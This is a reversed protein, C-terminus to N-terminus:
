LDQPDPLGSELKQTISEILAPDDSHNLARRWQFKAESVRGTRWYADGLHDNIVPDYAELEVARELVKTADEYRGERYHVWGLSDRIFGDYPRLSVAMEIMELAKDLNEGRDALGYGLYNLIYPNDPFFELAREFDKVAANWKGTQEYAIGRVYFINAYRQPFKDPDAYLNEIQNYVKIAEKFSEKIRFTEGYQFLAESNSPFESLVAELSTLAADFNEQKRQTQAIKLQAQLFYPSGSREQAYSDIAQDLNNQKVHIDGLLVNIGEMEKSIHMATQAFLLASDYSREQYFYRAINVIAMAAGGKPDKYQGINILDDLANKDDTEIAQLREDFGIFDPNNIKLETYIEAAKDTKGQRAHYDAIVLRTSASSDLLGLKDFNKEAIKLNGRIEAVLASHLLDLASKENAERPDDKELACLAWRLLVPQVLVKFPGSQISELKEIAADYEKNKFDDAILLLEAFDSLNEPDNLQVAKAIDVAEQTQGAALAVVLNHSEFSKDEVQKLALKMFDHAAEWDRKQQAFRSALYNGAFSDQNYYDPSTQESETKPKKNWPWIGQALVPQSLIIASAFVFISKPLISM